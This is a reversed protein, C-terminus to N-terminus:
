AWDQLPHFTEQSMGREDMKQKAGINEPAWAGFDSKRDKPEQM